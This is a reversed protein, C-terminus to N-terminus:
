HRLMDPTYWNPEADSLMALGLAMLAAVAGDIKDASKGKTPRQNDNSDRQVMVNKLCFRMVPNGDHRVQGSKVLKEFEKMPSSFNKITQGFEVLGDAGFRGSSQFHNVVQTANWPDFAMGLPQFRDVDALIDAEIRDYDTTSGETATIHGALVWPRLQTKNAAQRAKDADEPCWFRPLFYYRGDPLRFCWVCATLDMKTALDVGGWCPLGVLDADDMPGACADWLEVPFWTSVSDQWLNLRLQRFNAQTAASGQEAERFDGLFSSEPIVAGLSPNAKRWQAPDAWVDNSDAEFIVPLLEDDIADGALVRKAYTYREYGLSDRNNGATSIEILMPQTRMAGGYRLTDYTERDVVHVEDIICHSPNLGHGTKKSDKSLVEYYSAKGAYVIRHVTEKVDLHKQLGASQKVMNVAERFVISAQNRDAAASYVEAGDEGDGLLAYLVLASCLSSKGNKKAVWCSCRRYRRTGDPRKWGYLPAILQEWQWPLLEFPKGAFPKKSHRVFARLFRRVREAAALDFYCGAEVARRDADTRTWAATDEERSM